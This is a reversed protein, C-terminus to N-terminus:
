AAAEPQIEVVSRRRPSAIVRGPITVISEAGLVKRLTTVQVALNNEEVVIGPWVQDMLEAKTVLDGARGALTLLM